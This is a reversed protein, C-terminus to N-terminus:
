GNPPISTAPLLPSPSPGQLSGQYNEEDEASAVGPDADHAAAASSSFSNQQAGAGGGRKRRSPEPYSKVIELGRLACAEKAERKTLFTQADGSVVQATGEQEEPRALSVQAAFRQPELEIFSFDPKIGRKNCHHYLESIVDGGSQQQQGAAMNAKPASVPAGYSGGSALRAAREADWDKM